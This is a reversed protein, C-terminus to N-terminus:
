HALLRLAAVTATAIVVAIQEKFGQHRGFLLQVDAIDATRNLIVTFAIGGNQNLLQRVVDALAMAQLAVLLQVAIGAFAADFLVDRM